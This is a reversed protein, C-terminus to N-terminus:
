FRTSVNPDGNDNFGITKDEDKYFHFKEERKGLKEDLSVPVLERSDIQVNTNKTQPADSYVLPSFALSPLILWAAFVATKKASGSKRRPDKSSLGHKKGLRDRTYRTGGAEPDPVSVFDHISM